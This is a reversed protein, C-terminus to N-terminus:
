WTVPYKLLPCVSEMDLDIVVNKYQKMGTM